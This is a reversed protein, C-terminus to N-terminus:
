AHLITTCVNRHKQIMENLGNSQRYLEVLGKSPGGGKCKTKRLAIYDECPLKADIDKIKEKINLLNFRKRCTLRSPGSLWWPWHIFMNFM